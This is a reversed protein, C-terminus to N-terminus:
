LSTLAPLKGAGTLNVPVRATAQDDQAISAQIAERIVATQDTVVMVLMLFPEVGPFTVDLIVAGFVGRADLIGACFAFM